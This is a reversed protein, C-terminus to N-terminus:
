SCNIGALAEMADSVTKGNIDLRAVILVEIFAKQWIELVFNIDLRAVILVYTIYIIKLCIYRNIDLRAVILVLTNEKLIMM